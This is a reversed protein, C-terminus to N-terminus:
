KFLCLRLLNRLLRAAEAWQRAEEIFRRKGGTASPLPKRRRKGGSYVLDEDFSIWSSALYNAYAEAAAVRLYLTSQPGVERLAKMKLAYPGM